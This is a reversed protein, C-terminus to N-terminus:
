RRRREMFPVSGSSVRGPLGCDVAVPSLSRPRRCPQYQHLREAGSSLATLELIQQARRYLLSGADTLKLRRKGRIFLQVGLEEELGKIQNSLPPQSMNLREAARTINLEEATVSFYRLDRLEMTKCEERQQKVTNFQVDSYRTRDLMHIKHFLM